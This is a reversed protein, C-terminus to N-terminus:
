KKGVRLMRQASFCSGGRMEGGAKEGHLVLVRECVADGELEGLAVLADGDGDLVRLMVGLPLTVGEFEGVRLKVGLMVRVEDTVGLVVRLLEIVGLKVGVLEIVGDNVGVDDIVGENVGVDEAVGEDDRDDDAM